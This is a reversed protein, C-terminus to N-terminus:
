RAARRKPTLTALLTEIVTYPELGSGKIKMDADHCARVAGGLFSLSFHSCARMMFPIRKESIGLLQAIERDSRGSQAASKIRYLLDYTNIITGMIIEPKERRNKMEAYAAYAGDPNCNELANVFDFTGIETNRPVVTELDPEEVREMGNKHAYACLKQVENDLTFMSRGCRDILARCVAPSALIGLSTFHRQVWSLLHADTECDFRVARLQEGLKKLVSASRNSAKPDLEDPLCYIVLVNREDPTEYAHLGEIVALLEKLEGDKLASLDLDHVETLKGGGFFPLASFADTIAAFSFSAEAASIKVHNFVATQPDPCIQERLSELCHHKTYEEEGFFLFIGNPMQKLQRRFETGTIIDAM